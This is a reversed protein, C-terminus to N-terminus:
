ILKEMFSEPHCAAYFSRLDTRRLFSFIKDVVLFPAEWKLAKRFPEECKELLIIREKGKKIRFKLITNYIFFRKKVRCQFFTWILPNRVCSILKKENAVLIDFLKVGETIDTNRMRRIEIFCIQDNLQTGMLTDLNQQDIFQDAVQLRIVEMMLSSSIDANINSREISQKRDSHRFATENKGDKINIDAGYMLLLDVASSNGNKVATHLVTEKKSSSWANVDSGYKLLIKLLKESSTKVPKSLLYHLPTLDDKNRASLSAGCRLILKILNKDSDEQDLAFHLLPLDDKNNEEFSVGKRFLYKIMKLNRQEIFNYLSTNEDKSVSDIIDQVKELVREQVTSRLNQDDHSHKFRKKKM